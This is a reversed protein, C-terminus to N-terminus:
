SLKYIDDPMSAVPCLKM